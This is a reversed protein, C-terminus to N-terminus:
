SLLELFGDVQEVETAFSTVLRILVEHQDLLGSKVRPPNWQYFVAGKEQLTNAHAKDLICFVENAEPQWAIRAGKSNVIGKRLREAMANAHRALHLWFRNSTHQLM